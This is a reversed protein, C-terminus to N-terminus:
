KSETIEEIAKKIKEDEEKSIELIDKIRESLVKKYELMIEIHMRCLSKRKEPIQDNKSSRAIFLCLRETKYSIIRLQESLEGIENATEIVYSQRSLARLPSELREDEPVEDCSKDYLLTNLSDDKTKQAILMDFTDPM